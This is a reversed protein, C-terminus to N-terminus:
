LLAGLSETAAKTLSVAGMLIAEEIGFMRLAGCSECKYERADPECGGVQVDGCALCVGNGHEVDGVDLTLEKAETARREAIEATLARDKDLIKAKKDKIWQEDPETIDGTWTLTNAERKEPVLDLQLQVSWVMRGAIQKVIEPREAKPVSALDKISRWKKWGGDLWQHDASERFATRRLLVGDSMFAAVERTQKGDNATYVKTTRCIEYGHASLKAM